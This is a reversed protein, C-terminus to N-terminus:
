RVARITAHQAAHRVDGQMQKPVSSSVEAAWAAEHPRHHQLRGKNEYGRMKGRFIRRKGERKM